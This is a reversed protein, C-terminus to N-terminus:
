TFTKVKQHESLEGNLIETHILASKVFPYAGHIRLLTYALKDITILKKHNVTHRVHKQAYNFKMVIQTQRRGYHNECNFALHHAMAVLQRTIAQRNATSNLAQKYQKPLTVPRTFDHFLATFKTTLEKIEADDELLAKIGGNSVNVIGPVGVAELFLHLSKSPKQQTNANRGFPTEMSLKVYGTPTLLEENKGPLICGM